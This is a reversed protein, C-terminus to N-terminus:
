VGVTSSGEPPLSELYNIARILGQVSDGLLGIGANCGSCLLGRVRNVIHDHDVCLPRTSPQECVACLGNQAEFLAQYDYPELGYTYFRYRDTAKQVKHGQYGKHYRNRCLDSCFRATSARKSRLGCMKCLINVKHCKSMKSVNTQPTFRKHASLYRRTPM